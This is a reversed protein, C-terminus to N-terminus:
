RVLNLSSKSLATSTELSEFGYEPCTYVICNVNGLALLDEFGQVPEYPEYVV